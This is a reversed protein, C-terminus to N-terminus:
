SRHLDPDIGSGGILLEVGMTSFIVGSNTVQGGAKYAEM